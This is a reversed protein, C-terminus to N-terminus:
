RVLWDAPPRQMTGPPVLRVGAPLGPPASAGAHGVTSLPGALPALSAGEAPLVWLTRLGPSPRFTPDPVALLLATATRVVSGLMEGLVEAPRRLRLVDPTLAMPLRSEVERVHPALRRAADEPDGRVFVAQPSLCGAQDWACLDEALGRLSGESVDDLWAVSFAHGLGWFPKRGPVRSRVEAVADDTGLVVVAGSESVARDLAERDSSPFPRPVVEPDALALAEAIAEQGSAPKLLVRTDLRRACAVQRLASAPLTRAAVVLVVEPRADEYPVKPWPGATWSAFEAALGERAVPESFGMAITADLLARGAGRDLDALSRLRDLSSPESGIV